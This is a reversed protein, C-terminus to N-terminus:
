GQSLSLNVIEFSETATNSHKGLTCSAAVTGSGYSDTAVTWQWAASGHSVTKLSRLSASQDIRGDPYTVRVRCRAKDESYIYLHQKQHPQVSDGLQGFAVFLPQMGPCESTYGLDGCVYSGTDSPCSHWRHCGDRHAPSSHTSSAHAPMSGYFTGLGLALTLAPILRIGTHAM